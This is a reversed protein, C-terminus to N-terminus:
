FRYTAELLVTRPAGPAGTGDNMATTVFYFQDTLNKGTLTFTLADKEVGISADLLTYADNESVAINAVNGYASSRYSLDGNIFFLWGNPLATNFDSGLALTWEPSDRFENGEIDVTSGTLVHSGFETTLYGARGYLQWRQDVAFQLSAEAGAATAEPIAETIPLGDNSNYFTHRNDYDTHFLSVAYSLKGQTGKAGIEVTNSEESPLFLDAESLAGSRATGPKYGQSFSVYVSANNEFAYTLALRGVSNNFDEKVDGETAYAGFPGGDYRHTVTRTVQSFRGGLTLTLPPVVAWDVQGYGETRQSEQTHDFLQTASFAPISYTQQLDFTKDSFYAGLQWGLRSNSKPKVWRFEQFLADEDTNILNSTDAGAVQVMVDDLDLTVDRLGTISSFAVRDGQWNLRLATQTSKRLEDPDTARAFDYRDKMIADTKAGEDRHYDVTLAADLRDTVAADLVARFRQHAEAAADDHDTTTNTLYGDNQRHGLDVSLGLKGPIWAGKFSASAGLQQLNGLEASVSSQWGQARAPLSVINIAGALTNQGYLTSQPGRLVEIRAVDHLDFDSVNGSYPVGDIFVSVAPETFPIENGIGRVAIATNYSGGDNYVYTNAVLRLVDSLRKINRRKIMEGSIVDISAPVDNLDTEYRQASVVVPALNATNTAAQASAGLPISMAVAALSALLSRHANNM